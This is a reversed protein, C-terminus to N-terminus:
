ILVSGLATSSWIKPTVAFAERSQRSGFIGASRGVRERARNVALSFEPGQARTSHLLPTARARTNTPSGPKMRMTSELFETQGANIVQKTIRRDPAAIV